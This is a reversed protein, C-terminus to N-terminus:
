KERENLNNFSDITAFIREMTEALLQYIRIFFIEGYAFNNMLIVSSESIEQVPDSQSSSSSKRNKDKILTESTDIEKELRVQRSQQSEIEFQNFFYGWLNFVMEYKNCQVPKYLTPKLCDKYLKSLQKLMSNRREPNKIKLLLDRLDIISLNWRQQKQNTATQYIKQFEIVLSPSYFCMPNKATFIESELFLSGYFPDPPKVLYVDEIIDDIIERIANNRICRDLYKDVNHAFKDQVERMTESHGWFRFILPSSCLEPDTLLRWFEIFIGSKRSRYWVKLKVFQGPLIVGKTKNFFFPSIKKSFSMTKSQFRADRWQYIIVRNGKNEFVIEKEEMQNVKSSFDVNWKIPESTIGEKTSSFTQRIETDQIKLVVAQNPSKCSEEDEVDSITIPPIRPIEIEEPFVYNEIVLHRTEPETSSVLKIEQSLEEKRKHLYQSRKWVSKKSSLSVLNKEKEILEPLGVYTFEPVKNLDKKNPAFTIDPLCPDRKPIAPPIKWFEPGGRYNDPIVPVPVTAYDMLTRMEVLPRVTECSNMVHDRQHRGTEYKILMSQTKRTALWRKWNKLRRDELLVKDESIPRDCTYLVSPPSRVWKKPETSKGIKRAYDM